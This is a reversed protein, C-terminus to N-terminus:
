SKGKFKVTFWTMLAAEVRGDINKVIHAEHKTFDSDLIPWCYLYDSDPM